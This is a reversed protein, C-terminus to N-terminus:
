PKLKRYWSSTIILFICFIILHSGTIMSIFCFLISLACLLTMIILLILCQSWILSWHSCCHSLSILGAHTELLIPETHMHISASWIEDPLIILQFSLFFELRILNSCFLSAFNRMRRYSPVFSGLRSVIRGVIHLAVMVNPEHFM